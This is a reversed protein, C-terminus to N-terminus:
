RWFGLWPFLIGTRNGPRSPSGINGGHFTLAASEPDDHKQHHHDDNKQQHSAVPLRDGRVGDLDGCRGPLDLNGIVAIGFGSRCHAGAPQRIEAVHLALRPGVGLLHLFGQLM